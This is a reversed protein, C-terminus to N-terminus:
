SEDVGLVRIGNKELIEVASRSDQNVKLAYGCGDGPKPNEIRSIQSKISHKLLISRARQVNTISGVKIYSYM